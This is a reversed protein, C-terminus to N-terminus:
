SLDPVLDHYRFLSHLKIDQQRLQAEGGSERDRM